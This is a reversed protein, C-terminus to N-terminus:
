TCKKSENKVTFTVPQDTRPIRAIDAPQTLVQSTLCGAGPVEERVTVVQHDGEATMSELIINHGGTSKRGMAALLVMEKEFDIPPLSPLPEVTSHLTKWAQEWSAQDRIVLQTSTEYGSLQAFAFPQTRFRTLNSNAPPPAPAQGPSNQPPQAQCSLSLAALGLVLAKM